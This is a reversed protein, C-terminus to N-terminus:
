RRRKGRATQSTAALWRTEPGGNLGRQVACGFGRRVRCRHDGRLQSRVHRAGSKTHFSISHRRRSVLLKPTVLHGAGETGEMRNPFLDGGTSLAHSPSSGSDLVRHDLLSVYAVFDRLVNGLVYEDQRTRRGTSTTKM